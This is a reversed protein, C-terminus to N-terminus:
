DKLTNEKNIDKTNEENIVESNLEKIQNENEKKNEKSLEIPKNYNKNKKLNCKTEKVKSKLNKDKLKKNEQNLHNMKEQIEKLFEPLLNNKEKDTLIKKPINFIIEEQKDFFTLKMHLKLTKDVFDIFIKKSNKENNEIMEDIMIKAEDPSDYIKFIKNEKCLDELSYIREYIEDFYIAAVEHCSISLFKKSNSLNKEKLNKEDQSISLIPNNEIIKIDILFLCSKAKQLGTEISLEKLQSDNRTYKLIYTSMQEKKKDIQQKTKKKKKIQGIDKEFIQISNEQRDTDELNKEFKELSKKSDPSTESSNQGNKLSQNEKEEKEDEEIKINKSLEIIQDTEM